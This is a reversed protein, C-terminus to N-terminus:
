SLGSGGMGTGRGSTGFLPADPKATDAGSLTGAFGAEEAAQGDYGQQTGAGQALIRAEATATAQDHVDVGHSRLQADATICARNDEIRDM